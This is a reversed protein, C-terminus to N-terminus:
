PEERKKAQKDLWLAWLVVLGLTAFVLVAYILINM